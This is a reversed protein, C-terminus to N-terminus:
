YAFPPNFESRERDCRQDGHGDMECDAGIFGRNLRAGIGDEEAEDKAERQGGRCHLREPGAQPTPHQVVEREDRASDCQERDPLKDCGAHAEKREGIERTRSGDQLAQDEIPSKKCFAGPVGKPELEGTVSQADNNSEDGPDTNTPKGDSTIPTHREQFDDAGNWSCGPHREGHDKGGRAFNGGHAQDRQRDPEGNGHEGDGTDGIGAGGVEIDGASETCLLAKEDEAHGDWGGHWINENAEEHAEAGGENSEDHGFSDTHFRAKAPVQLPRLAPGFVVFNEGRERDHGDEEGGDHREEELEAVADQDPLFSRDFPLRKLGSRLSKGEYRQLRLLTEWDRRNLRECGRVPQHKV